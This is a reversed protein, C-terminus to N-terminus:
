QPRVYTAIEKYVGDLIQREAMLTDFRKLLKESINEM